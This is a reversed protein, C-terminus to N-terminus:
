SIRKIGGGFTRVVIDGFESCWSDTKNWAYAFVYYAGTNFPDIVDEVGDCDSPVCLMSWMESNDIIEHTVAYVLVGSDDELERIKNYLEPEQDAWFGAFNEFFCPMQEKSKFKTIYPKHIGLKEMCQIALEKQKVKNM